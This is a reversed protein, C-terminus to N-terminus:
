FHQVVGYKDSAKIAQYVFGKSMKVADEVNKGMALQSAISSAFTCGAGTNNADVVPFAYTEFREGDYYLDTAEEANLRNGGKIVVHKAGMDYLKEAAIKMQDLNEISLGTLLQAEVLNPTIVDAYPFFAILQERLQSVELDHNEKCVLVPDLVVPCEQKSKVFELVVQATEVNPLLGLKISGFEVDKLSELQQKLISAEIPIVEFGKDSMATLCTVAVFGHLKNVVYTALDAHLGGGSFIDNGSIALVNRTKM